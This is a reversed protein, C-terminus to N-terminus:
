ITSKPRSAEAASERVFVAQVSGPMILTLAFLFSLMWTGVKRMM